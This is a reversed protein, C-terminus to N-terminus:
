SIRVIKYTTPGSPTTVAVEEKTTRGLLARGLPSENSIKRAAPDAETSGVITFEVREGNKEVEVLDGVEVIDKPKNHGTAKILVAGRITEELEQIKGENFAQEERAEHYEANESLDGLSIANEIRDAIEKRRVKKLEELQTKLEGLREKTIYNAM